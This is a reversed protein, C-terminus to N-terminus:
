SDGATVHAFGARGDPAINGARPQKTQATKAIYEPFSQQHAIQYRISLVSNIAFNGSGDIGKHIISQMQDALRAPVKIKTQKEM